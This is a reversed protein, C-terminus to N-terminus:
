VLVFDSLNNKPQVMSDPLYEVLKNFLLCRRYKLENLTKQDTIKTNKESCIDTPSCSETNSSDMSLTNYEDLASTSDGLKTPCLRCERENMVSADTALSITLYSVDSKYIKTSFLLTALKHFEDLQKPDEHNVITCLKTQLYTIAEVADKDVTEEYELRRILYKCHRLMQQRSPKNLYLIWFDDLRVNPATNRGPNGGFLYHVKNVTDYVLQHAYRPCPETCITQNKAYCNDTPHDNKYIITWQNTKLSYLWFSNINM